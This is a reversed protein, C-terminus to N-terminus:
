QSPIFDLQLLGTLVILITSRITREHQSALENSIENNFKHYTVHPIEYRCTCQSFFQGDHSIIHTYIYIRVPLHDRHILTPKGLVLSKQFGCFIDFTDVLRPLTCKLCTTWNEKNMFYPVSLSNNIYLNFHTAWVILLLNCSADCPTVFSRTSVVITLTSCHPSCPVTHRECHITNKTHSNERIEIM